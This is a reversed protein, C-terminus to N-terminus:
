PAVWERPTGAGADYGYFLIADCTDCRDTWDEDPLLQFPLSCFKCSVVQEGTSELYGCYDSRVRDILERTPVGNTKGANCDWCAAVLNWPQNAGGLDVPVVHDIHLQKIGMSAPVGCYYCAFNCRRLVEFRLRAGIAERNSAM